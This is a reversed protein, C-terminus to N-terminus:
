FLGATPTANKLICSANAIRFLEHYLLFCHQGIKNVSWDGFKQALWQMYKSIMVTDLLSKEQFCLDIKHAYLRWNVQTAQEVTRFKDTVIVAKKDM